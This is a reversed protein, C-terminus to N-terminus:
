CIERACMCDGTSRDISVRNGNGNGFICIFCSILFFVLVM